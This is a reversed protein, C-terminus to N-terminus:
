KKKMLKGSRILDKKLRNGVRRFLRVAPRVCRCIINYTFLLPTLLIKLIKKFFGSFFLLIRTLIRLILDSLIIGYLLAGLGAGLLEYFRVIGNNTYLIVFFMVGAALIWFVADQVQVLVSDPSSTRRMLRFLDYLFYLGAGAAAASAFVFVEKSVSFNM